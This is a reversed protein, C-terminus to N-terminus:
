EQGRGCAAAAAAARRRTTTRGGPGASSSLHPYLRLPKGLALAEPRGSPSLRPLLRNKREEDPLWEWVIDDYM